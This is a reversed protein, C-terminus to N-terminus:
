REGNTHAHDEPLLREIRLQSARLDAILRQGAGLEIGSSALPGRVMVSGARLDVEFTAEAGSWRVDFAAGTVQIVFPGAAVSWRTGRRHVVELSARGDELGIDAGEAHLALMRGRGGPLLTLKSGDSFVVHGSPATSPVLIDDRESVIPLDVDFTLAPRRLWPGAIFVDTLSAAVAAASAWMKAKRRVAERLPERLLRAHLRRRAETEEQPSVHGTLQTRAMRGLTGLAQHLDDPSSALWRNM